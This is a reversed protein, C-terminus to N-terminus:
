LDIIHYGNKIYKVKREALVQNIEETLLECSWVTYFSYGIAIPVEM